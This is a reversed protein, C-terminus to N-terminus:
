ILRYEWSSEMLVRSINVPLGFALHETTSLYWRWVGEKRATLVCVAMTFTLSPGWFLLFRSITNLWDVFM